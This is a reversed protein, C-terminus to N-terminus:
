ARFRVLVEEPRRDRGSVLAPLASFITPRSVSRFSSSTGVSGARSLATTGRGPRSKTPPNPAVSRARSRLCGLVVASLLMLTRVPRTRPSDDYLDVYYYFPGVTYMVLQADFYFPGYWM